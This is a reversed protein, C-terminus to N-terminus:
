KGGIQWAPDDPDAPQMPTPDWQNARIWSALWSGHQEPPVQKFAIVNGLADKVEDVIRARYVPHNERDEAYYAEEITPPPFGHTDRGLVLQLRHNRYEYRRPALKSVPNLHSGQGRSEFWQGPFGQGYHIVGHPDCGVNGIIPWLAAEDSVDLMGAAPLTNSCWFIKEFLGGLATVEPYQIFNNDDRASYYVAVPNATPVPPEVPAPAVVVPPKPSPHSQNGTGSAPGNTKESKKKRLTFVGYAVIALIVVAIILNTSM